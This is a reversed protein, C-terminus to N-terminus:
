QAGVTHWACPLLVPMSEAQSGSSQSLHCVDPRTADVLVLPCPPLADPSVCSSGQPHKCRPIFVSFGFMGPFLCSPAFPFMIEKRLGIELHWCHPYFQSVSSQSQSTGGLGFVLPSCSLPSPRWSPPVASHGTSTAAKTAGQESASVQLDEWHGSSATALPQQRCSLVGTGVAWVGRGREWLLYPSLHWKGSKLSGLAVKM